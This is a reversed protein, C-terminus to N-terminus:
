HRQDITQFLKQIFIHLNPFNDLFRYFVLNIVIKDRPMKISLLGWESEGDYNDKAKCKITYSGQESWTHSKTIKQGPTYPGIWSSNNNDGWDIYYYLWEDNDSDTTNFKYSYPTKIKGKESGIITPKDPPNNLEKIKAWTSDTSIKDTSDTVTLTVTYNSSVIYTHIPNQETSISGDGFDWLWEYPEVGSEASGIFQVQKNIVGYYPGNADVYFEEEQFAFYDIGNNSLGSYRDSSFIDETTDWHEHVGLSDSLYVGDNEPDYTNLNPVASQHLYNQSGESPNTGEALLFDYMVSDIAVPDQSFFLSSTWDNNFPYMQFKAITRHDVKTVYTADGIYLITKGGVQKHAFLDTQPAPNGLIFSSYLYDHVDQVPEIWTGFLNKGSLTVGTEIPHRKLLPMNILYKAETVITPLTRYACSGAAFYIRQSSAIVEERGSAGGSSDAFHVDPFEPVSPDAPYEVYYVRNYFWNGIPRTADYIAIDEQNVGVVNVLQRLLSKIVYPSADRDNDEATYSGCNNFNVKIAIKEGTQYGINGYGHEQNFYKFIYDWASYDDDADVLSTLGNSYMQDIVTQNNNEMKWWYGSLEKETADPNWVWVVRGPSAGTPTGFPDKPIPDWIVLNEKEDNYINAFVNSSISFILLFTVLIVPSFKVVNYKVKKMWVNLGHFIASWFLVWFTIYGLAFIISMQQCPYRIRDPKPVVRILFWIICIIGIIHFLLSNPNTSNFMLKMKIKHFNIKM